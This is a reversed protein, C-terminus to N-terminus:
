QIILKLHQKKEEDPIIDDLKGTNINYRYIFTENKHSEPRNIDKVALILIPNNKMLFYTSIEMNPINIVKM